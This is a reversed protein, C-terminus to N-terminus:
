EAYALNELMQRRSRPDYGMMMHAFQDYIQQQDPVHLGYGRREKASMHRAYDKM